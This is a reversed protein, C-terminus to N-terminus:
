DVKEFLGYETDKVAQQTQKAEDQAKMQARKNMRERLSKLDAAKEAYSLEGDDIFITLVRSRLLQANVELRRDKLVYLDSAAAAAVNLVPDKNLDTYAEFFGNSTIRFFAYGTPDQKDTSQSLLEIALDDLYKKM